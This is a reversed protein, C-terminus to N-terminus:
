GFASALSSAGGVAAIAGGIVANKRAKEADAKKMMKEFAKRQEDSMGSMM